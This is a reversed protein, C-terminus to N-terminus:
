WIHYTSYHGWLCRPRLKQFRHFNGQIAFTVKLHSYILSRSTLHNDQMRQTPGTLCDWTNKYASLLLDALLPPLCHSSPLLLLFLSTMFRPILVAELLHSFATFPITGQFSQLFHLGSSVKIEVCHPMWKPSRVDLVKLLIFTHQKLAHLQHYNTIAAVSLWHM